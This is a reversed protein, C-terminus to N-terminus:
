PGDRPEIVGRRLLEVAIRGGIDREGPSPRPPTDQARDLEILLAEDSASGLAAEAEAESLEPATLREHLADAERVWLEYRDPTEAHFGEAVVEIAEGDSAISEAGFVSVADSRNRLAVRLLGRDKLESLVAVGLALLSEDDAEDLAEAVSDRPEEDPPHGNGSGNIM